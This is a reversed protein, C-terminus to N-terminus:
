NTKFSHISLLKLTMAIILDSYSNGTLRIKKDNQKIATNKILESAFGDSHIHLIIMKNIIITTDIIKHFREISYKKLLSPNAFLFFDATIKKILAHRLLM